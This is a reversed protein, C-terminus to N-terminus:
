FNRHPPTTERERERKGLEGLQESHTRPDMRDKMEGSPPCRRMESTVRPIPCSQRKYALGQIRWEPTVMSM